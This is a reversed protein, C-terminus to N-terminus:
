EVGPHQQSPKEFILWSLLHAVGPDGQLETHLGRGPGSPTHQGELKGSPGRGQPGPVLVLNSLVSSSWLPPSPCHDSTELDGNTWCCGLLRTMTVGEDGLGACPRIHARLQSLFIDSALCRPGTEPNGDRQPTVAVVASLGAPMGLWTQVRRFFCQEPDLACIDRRDQLKESLSM